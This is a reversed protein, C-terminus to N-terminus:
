KGEIDLVEYVDSDIYTGLVGGSAADGSVLHFKGDFIDGAL